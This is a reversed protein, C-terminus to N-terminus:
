LERCIEASQSEVRAGRSIREGDGSVLKRERAKADYAIRRVRRINNNLAGNVCRPFKTKEFPADAPEALMVFLLLPKILKKLVLVAPEAFMVFLAVTNKVSLLVAPTALIVFLLLPITRNKGGARSAGGVDRVVTKELEELVTRRAGGVNCGVLATRNVQLLARAATLRPEDDVCASAEVNGAQRGASGRGARDFAGARKIKAAFLECDAGVVEVGDDASRDHVAASEAAGASREDLGAGAHQRKRAVVSVRAGRRDVGSRQLNAIAPGTARDLAIHGVVSGKGKIAAVGDGKGAHDASAAGEDLLATTHQSQGSQIAIRARGRDGAAHQLATRGVGETRAAGEGDRRSGGQVQAAIM